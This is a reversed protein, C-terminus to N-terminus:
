NTIQSHVYGFLFVISDKPFIFFLRISDKVQRWFTITKRIFAPYNKKQYGIDRNHGFNGSDLIFEVLRRARWKESKGFVPIASEPIGLYERAFLSFANWESILGMLSLRDYLLGRDIQNSYTWLLRCWDCIQRLGIGGKFFHQLIHTFVFIVDCDPSPLLINVNEVEWVRFRHNDFMNKQISDIAKDIRNSLGTHLTGHLELEVSALTMGLHKKARRESHVSQAIPLLVQKAKEYDYSGLLLDIDGAARWGPKSYCQAIGQGKVLVPIVGEKYLRNVLYSAFSNMETNRSEYSLVRTIFPLVDRKAVKVDIVNEVGSAVIGVVSQEEALQLVDAFDVEGYPSLLVEKEWLGARVIAFFAEITKSKKEAMIRNTHM